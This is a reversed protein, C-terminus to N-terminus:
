FEDESGMQAMVHDRLVDAVVEDVTEEFQKVALVRTLTVVEFSNQVSDIALEHAHAGVDFTLNHVNEEFDDVLVINLCVITQRLQKFNQRWNSGTKCRRELLLVHDKELTHEDREM